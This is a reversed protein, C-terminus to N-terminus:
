GPFELLPICGQEIKLLWDIIRIFSFNRALIKRKQFVCWQAHALAHFDRYYRNCCVKRWIKNLIMMACACTCPFDRYYNNCCFKKWLMNKYSTDNRMRLHIPTAIAEVAVSSEEYWIKTLLMMACACTYTSFKYSKSCIWILYM